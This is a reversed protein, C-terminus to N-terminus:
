LFPTINKFLAFDPLLNTPSPFPSFFINQILFSSGGMGSAHASKLGEMVEEAKELQHEEDGEARVQERWSVLCRHAWSGRCAGQQKGAGTRSSYRSGVARNHCM